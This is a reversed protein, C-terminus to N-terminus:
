GKTSDRAMVLYAREFSENSILGQTRPWDWQRSEIRQGQGVAEGWASSKRLFVRLILCGGEAEEAGVLVALNM